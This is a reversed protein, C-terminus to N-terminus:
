IVMFGGTNNIYMILIAAIGIFVDILIILVILLTSIYKCCLLIDLKRRHISFSFSEIILDSRRKETPCLTPTWCFVNKLLVKMVYHFFVFM